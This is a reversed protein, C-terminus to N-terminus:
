RTALHKEDIEGREVDDNTLTERGALEVLRRATGIALDHGHLM